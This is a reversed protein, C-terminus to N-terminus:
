NRWHMPRRRAPPLRTTADGRAGDIQPQTLFFTTRLDGGSVDAGRLDAGTVDALSLDAGRLNCGVLRASRLDAGRLDRGALDAGALDAGALDAPRTIGSRAHASVRRLMPLVQTRHADLDAALIRQPDSRALQETAQRAAALSDREGPPALREAEQLHWLLEHLERMRAFVDFMQRALNPDDRWDRGAFTEQVVHQGAGFCDYAACGPFGRERLTSHIVCRSSPQLHPCPQGAPKDIAFDASAAFAPAVCCLAACRECDATLPLEAM